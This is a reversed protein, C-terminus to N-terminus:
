LRLLLTDSGGVRGAPRFGHAGYLPRAASNDDKVSLSVATHGAGGLAGICADLLQSGLGPGRYPALVAIGLEPVDDAVFGYGAKDATVVRAWCAGMPTGTQAESVVGLDTTRQWGDRHHTYRADTRIQACTTPRLPM